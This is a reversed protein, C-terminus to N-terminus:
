GYWEETVAIEDYYQEFIYTVGSGYLVL